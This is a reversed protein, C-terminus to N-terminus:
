FPSISRGLIFLQTFIKLFGSKISNFKVKEVMRATLAHAEMHHIPIFPVNWTKCLKKAFETGVVLSLPMGPKVTAAIADLDKVELNANQLATEVIQSINQIHLDRAIPPIIGGM